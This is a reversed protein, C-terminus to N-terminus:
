SRPLAAEIASPFRTEFDLIGVWAPRISIRIQQSLMARVQEVWAHGQEEGLYRRAAATYEDPVGNVTEISATGRMLLVKAPFSESDITLAVQPHDPLIKVKPAGPPTVLVVDKGTWHFWIPIVRPTGDKWVYALRAPISSHLLQQAIPDNLLSVDGQKSPM